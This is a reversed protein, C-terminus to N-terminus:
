HQYYQNEPVKFVRSRQLKLFNDNEGAHASTWKEYADPSAAFVWQNYAEFMNEQIMQRQHDFLRYPYVTAYKGFWDVIFRTRLNTLSEATIGDSLVAGHKLFTEAVAKTFPTGQAKYATLKAPSAFLLKYDDSVIRKMIETRDSLSELNIFMEGYIVAWLLNSKQDYYRAANYYNTSINPDAEIGQEWYKISEDLKGQSAYLEGMENYLVGSKPFQKLGKKYLKECEKYEAINKYCMGLMKYSGPDASPHEVLKKSVEIAHAYDKNLYYTFALDELLAINKPDQESARNLVMIANQYDGHRLFAKGKEHLSKSDNGDQAWLAAVPSLLLLFLLTRQIMM